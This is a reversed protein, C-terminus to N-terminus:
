SGSRAAARMPPSLVSSAAAEDASGEVSGLPAGSYPVSVEEGPWQPYAGLLKVQDASALLDRVAGQIPGEVIHGECVIHFCHSRPRALPRSVISLMNVGNASFSRSVRELSGPQDMAPTVVLSTRDAGTPESVEQGALVYRTRIDPANAVTTQIRELGSRAGVVAPALAVQCTDREHGVIRVAEETSVVPRECLGEQVIFSRCLRLIDPHSVVVTPHSAGGPVRFAYIEEILVVEECFRVNACEFAVLDVNALLEGDISNEVPVVGFTGPTHEVTSLVERISSIPLVDLDGITQFLSSARHDSTGPPGEFLLTPM